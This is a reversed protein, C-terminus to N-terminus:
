QVHRKVGVCHNNEHSSKTHDVYVGYSIDICIMRHLIEASNSTSTSIEIREVCEQPFCNFFKAQIFRLFELMVSDFIFNSIM